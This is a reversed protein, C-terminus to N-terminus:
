KFLTPIITIRVQIKFSMDRLLPKNLTIPGYQTKLSRPKTGNRYTRRLGTREYKGAGAQEDAERQMVENQYWTIVNKMGEENANIYNVIREKSNM